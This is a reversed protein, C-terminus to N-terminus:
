CSRSPDAPPEPAYFHLENRSDSSWFVDGSRARSFLM